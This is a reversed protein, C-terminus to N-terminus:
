NKRSETDTKTDDKFWEKVFEDAIRLSEKVALSPAIEGLIGHKAELVGQICSLAVQFKMEDRTMETKAKTWIVKALSKLDSLKKLDETDQISNWFEEFEMM